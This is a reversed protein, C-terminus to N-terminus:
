QVIGRAWRRIMAEFNRQGSQSRSSSIYHAKRPGAVTMVTIKWHKTGRETGLVKLGAAEIYAVMEPVTKANGSM